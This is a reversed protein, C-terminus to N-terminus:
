VNIGMKYIIIMVLIIVIIVLVLFLVIKKNFGNIFFLSFFSIIMVGIFIVKILDIKVGILIIMFFLM